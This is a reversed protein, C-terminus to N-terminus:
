RVSRRTSPPRFIERFTDPLSSVPATEVEDLPEPGHQIKEILLFIFLFFLIIYLVIFTVM